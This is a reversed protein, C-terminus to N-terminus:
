GLLAAVERAAAAEASVTRALETTAETLRSDADSAKAAERGADGVVTIADLFRQVIRDRAAEGRAVADGSRDRRSALVAITRDLRDLDQAADCAAVVLDEADSRNLVAVAVLDALLSRATGPALRRSVDVVRRRVARSLTSLPPLGQVPPKTAILAGALLVTALAPSTWLYYPQHVVVGTVTGIGVVLALMAIYPAPIRAPRIPIRHGASRQRLVEAVTSAAAYRCSPDAATMRAVTADLWEPVDGRLARPSHGDASPTPPLHPSPRPPLAGVLAFYLTAGLGYVDARADARRGAIVEPATYGVTGVFAGTQTVTAQSELKASGFDTLRARGDRALLINQPKVDRHLVGRQHATELADAVGAGMAVAEDISLPGHTAVHIALDVGDILEMVICSREHDDLLDYVAVINPHSLTRVAEVERRVRERALQAVLPPPVLLKIAVKAGVTRDTAAYVVSYGGRGIERDIEYRGALLEGADLYAGSV